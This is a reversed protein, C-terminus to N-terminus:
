ASVNGTLVLVLAIAVLFMVSFCVLVAFAMRLTLEIGRLLKTFNSVGFLESIAAAGSLALRYLMLEAFVPLFLICLTVIGVFGTCSKLIKLSGLVTSYADSVAGGVFPVFNSVVYRATKSAFTDTSGRVAGQISLVGIFITMLFGLTWTVITKMLHQLGGASGNPTISDTISLALSMSLLPLLAKDIVQIIINVLAYVATNYCLGTGPNGSTIIIGAFVPTFTTMFDSSQAITERVRLFCSCLDPMVAAAGAIATILNSMHDTNGRLGGKSAEAFATFIIVATLSLFVRFPSTLKATVTSCILEIIEWIGFGDVSDPNDVSINYKQLVSQVDSSVNDTIEDAGSSSIIEESIEYDTEEASACNGSCMMICECFLCLLVATIKKIIGKM